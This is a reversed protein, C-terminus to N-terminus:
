HESQEQNPRKQRPIKNWLTQSTKESVEFAQIFERRKKQEPIKVETSKKYNCAM